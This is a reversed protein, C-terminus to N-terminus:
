CASNIDREGCGSPKWVWEEYFTSTKDHQLVKLIYGALPSNEHVATFHSVFALLHTHSYKPENDWMQKSQFLCYHIFSLLFKTLQFLQYMLAQTGYLFLSGACHMNQKNISEDLRQGHNLIGLICHLYCLQYHKILINIKSQHFKITQQIM